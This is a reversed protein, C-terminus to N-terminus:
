NVKAIINKFDATLDLNFMVYFLLSTFFKISQRAKTIGLFNIRTSYTLM